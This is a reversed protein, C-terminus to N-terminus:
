SNLCIILVKFKRSFDRWEAELSGSQWQIPVDVPPPQDIIPNPPVPNVPIDVPPPSPPPEIEPSGTGQIAADLEQVAITARNISERAAEISATDVPSNMTQHLDEMASLGLNM